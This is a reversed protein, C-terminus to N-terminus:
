LFLCAVADAFWLNGNAISLEIFSGRPSSEAEDQKPRMCRQQMDTRGSGM